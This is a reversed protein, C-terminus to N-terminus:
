KVISAPDGKCGSSVSKTFRALLSAGPDRIRAGSCQSQLYGHHVGLKKYSHKPDSSQDEENLLLPKLM